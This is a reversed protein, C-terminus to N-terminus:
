PQPDEDECPRDDDQLDAAAELTLESLHPGVDLAAVVIASERAIRLFRLTRDKPLAELAQSWTQSSLEGEWGEDPARDVPGEVLTAELGLVGAAALFNGLRGKELDSGAPFIFSAGPGESVVVELPPKAERSAWLLAKALAGLEGRLEVSMLRSPLKSAKLTAAVIRGWAGGGGLLLQEVAPGAASRPAARSRLATGDVLEAEVSAVGPGVRNGEVRRGAFPGELWEAVTGGLVSPPLRGLTLGESVLRDEVDRVRASAYARFWMADRDLDGRRGLRDDEGELPDPALEPGDLGLKGPNCIGGPDFRRKLERLLSMGGPGLEERLWPGKFLGVGHHHTITAGCRAAADLAAVWARDYNTEGRETELARGTFTFYISCGDTYAHSFHAMVLAYESVADRVAHFLGEVKSWSTAVEFTDVWAGAEFVKPMKYSVAYREELWRRGPGEGLDVAGRGQCIERALAAEAEAEGVGGEHVLVLLSAKALSAARNLWVVRGLAADLAHREWASRGPSRSPRLVDVGPPPTTVIPEDTAEHARGGLAIVTDLPDYLRAVSPRLGEAFLAEVAALGEGLTRFRYGRAIQVQPAPWIRLKADTFVGFSGESGLLLEMWDIGAIPRKARVTEGSGLVCSLELVMDEIKGYRSSSQGASRAALWGGLSSCGISSPFHGLTLGERQLAEELEVGLIGVQAEVFLHESDIRLIRNMREFRIAIGGHVALTGGCVGSGAGYPILPIRRENAFRVLARIEEASGPLVVADPPAPALGRREWLFAKPWMDSGARHRSEADVYVHEAGLICGLAAALEEDVVLRGDRPLLPPTPLRM